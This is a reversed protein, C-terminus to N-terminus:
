VCLHSFRTDASNPDFKDPFIFGRVWGAAGNVLGAEIWRNATLLVRSGVCLRLEAALGRFQDGDMRSADAGAPQKHLARVGLIPEGTRASLRELEEANYADAGDEGKANRRKGDMLLLANGFEREYENRGAATCLLNRKNRKSLWRWDERDWDLDAM